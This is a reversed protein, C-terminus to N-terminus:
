ILGARARSPRGPQGEPLDALEAVNRGILDHQQARRISWHLTTKLGVLSRKSLVRGCDNFFREIDKASLTKLKAKGIKPYIWNEAQGRMPPTCSPAL